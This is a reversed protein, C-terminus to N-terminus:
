NVWHSAIQYYYDYENTFLKDLLKVFACCFVEFVGYKSINQPLTLLMLRFVFLPYFFELYEPM